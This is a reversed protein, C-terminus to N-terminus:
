FVCVDKSIIREGSSGNSVVTSAPQSNIKGVVAEHYTKVAVM